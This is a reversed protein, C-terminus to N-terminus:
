RWRCVWYLHWPGFLILFSMKRSRVKEYWCQDRPFCLSLASYSVSTVRNISHRTWYVHSKIKYLCWAPVLNGHLCIWVWVVIQSNGISSAFFCLWLGWQSLISQVDNDKCLLLPRSCPSIEALGFFCLMFSALWLPPSATLKLGGPHARSASSNWLGSLAKTHYLLRGYQWIERVCAHDLM